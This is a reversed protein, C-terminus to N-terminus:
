RHVFSKCWLSSRSPGRRYARLQGEAKSAGVEGALPMRRFVTVQGEVGARGVACLGHPPLTMLIRVMDPARREFGAIALARATPAAGEGHSRPVVLRKLRARQAPFRGLKGRGPMGGFVARQSWVVNRKVRALADPPLARGVGRMDPVCRHVVALSAVTGETGTTEVAGDVCTVSPLIGNGDRM